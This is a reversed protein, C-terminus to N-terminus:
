KSSCKSHSFMSCWEFVINPYTIQLFRIPYFHSFSVSIGHLTGIKNATNSFWITALHRVCNGIAGLWLEDAETSVPCSIRCYHFLLNDKHSHWALTCNAGFKNADGIWHTWWCNIYVRSYHIGCFWHANWLCTLNYGIYCHIYLLLLLM